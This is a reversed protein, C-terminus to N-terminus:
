TRRKQMNKEQPIHSHHIPKKTGLRSPPYSASRHKCLQILLIFLSKASLPTCPLTSQKLALFGFAPSSLFQTLHLMPPLAPTPKNSPSDYLFPTFQKEHAGKKISHKRRALCEHKEAIPLNTLAYDCSEIM